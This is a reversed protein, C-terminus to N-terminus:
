NISVDEEAKKPEEIPKVTEKVPKAKAKAKAKAQEKKADWSQVVAPNFASLFAYWYFLNPYKTQNPAAILYILYKITM